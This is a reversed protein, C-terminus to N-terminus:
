KAEGALTQPQPLVPLVTASRDSTLTNLFAVLDNKEQESLGLPKMDPSLRGTMLVGVDFKKTAAHQEAKDLWAGLNRLAQTCQSIAHYYM